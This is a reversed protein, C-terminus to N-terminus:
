KQLQKLTAARQANRKAEHAKSLAHEYRELRIAEAAEALAKEASKLYADAKPYHGPLAQASKIASRADAMEQAPPKMACASFLLLLVLLTRKMVHM